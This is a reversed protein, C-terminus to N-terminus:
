QSQKKPRLAKLQIVLEEVQARTERIEAGTDIIYNARERKDADPTQLGLIHRFKEETMGPRALVRARQKEAPASVVVIADVSEHGGREFLLPIDFVVLPM